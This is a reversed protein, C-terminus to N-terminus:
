TSAGLTRLMARANVAFATLTGPAVETRGNDHCKFLVPTTTLVRRFLDHEVEAVVLPDSDDWTVFMTCHAAQACAKGLSLGLSADLLVVLPTGTQNDRALSAAERAQDLLQPLPMATAPLDPLTDTRTAALSPPQDAREMPPFVIVEAGSIHSLRYGHHSAVEAPDLGASRPVTVVKTFSESLWAEVTEEFDEAHIDLALASAAAACTITGLRDAVRTLVINQALAVVSM